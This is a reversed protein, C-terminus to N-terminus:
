GTALDIMIPRMSNVIFGDQGKITYPEILNVCVGRWPVTEATKVLLHGYKRSTAKGKPYCKCKKTVRRAQYRM